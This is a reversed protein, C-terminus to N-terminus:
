GFFSRIASKRLQLEFTDLDQEFFDLKQTIDLLKIDKKGFLPKASISKENENINEQKLRQYNQMRIKIEDMKKLADIYDKDSRIIDYFENMKVAGSACKNMINLTLLELKCELETIENKLSYGETIAQINM